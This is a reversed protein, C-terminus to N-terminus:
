RVAPPPRHEVAAADTIFVRADPTPDGETTAANLLARAAANAFEDDVAVELKLVTRRIRFAAGRYTGVLSPEPGYGLMRSVSMVCCVCRDLADEVAALEEPRIIAHLVKM